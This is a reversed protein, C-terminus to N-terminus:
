LGAILNEVIEDAAKPRFFQTVKKEMAEVRTSDLVFERITQALDSGKADQQRLLVSAGANVFIKANEEQHNDAATPLPILLAARGVAAIESLTSSGARCILLSAAQYAAPMDFIFKEVRAEVGNKRYNELVREYDKEGTQHIWRLQDKLDSLHPLAEIVLSNVGLAGQSGGFIFVTFPNRQASPMPKMVSRIPNGSVVLKQGSFQTDMGPFAVFVSHVLRGLLRNTFGPVSNQELIGTQIRLIHFWGLVRAMLVVPGSAYGGVGLVVQPRERLLIALSRFLSLPLQFFTKLKRKLSVRNLSGLQLLQLPYGSRPVLKEELGGQAGVFLVTGESGFRSRWSDAIAVGALVHGGTGGGAILLKPPQATKEVSTV